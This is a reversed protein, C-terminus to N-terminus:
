VMSGGRGWEFVGLFSLFIVHAFTDCEVGVLAVVVNIEPKM